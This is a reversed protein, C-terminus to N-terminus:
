TTEEREMKEIRVLLADREDELDLLTTMTFPKVSHAPMRARAEALKEEVAALQAKLEDMTPM